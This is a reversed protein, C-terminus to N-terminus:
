NRIEVQLTSMADSRLNDIGPTQCSKGPLRVILLMGCVRAKLPDIQLESFPDIGVAGTNSRPSSSGSSSMNFNGRTVAPKSYFSLQDNNFNLDFNIPKNIDVSLQSLIQHARFAVELQEETLTVKGTERLRVRMMGYQMYLPVRCVFDSQHSLFFTFLNNSKKDVNCIM